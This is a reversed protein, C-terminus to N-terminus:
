TTSEGKCRGCCGDNGNGNGNGHDQAHGGGDIARLVCRVVGENPLTTLITLRGDDDERVEAQPDSERLARGLNRNRQELEDGTNPM